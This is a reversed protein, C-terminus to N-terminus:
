REGGDLADAANDLAAFKDDITWYRLRRALERNRESDIWVKGDDTWRLVVAACAYISNIAPNMVLNGKTTLQLAASHVEPKACQAKEAQRERDALVAARRISDIWDSFATNPLPPLQIDDDM